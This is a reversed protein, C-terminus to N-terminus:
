GTSNKLQVSGGSIPFSLSSPAALSIENYVHRVKEIAAIKSEARHRLEETPTQGTLLVIQNYSTTSIHSKDKLEADKWLMETAKLEIAQDEIVSGTTRTDNAVAAGTVAGGFLVGACGSLGLLPLVIVLLLLTSMGFRLFRTAM